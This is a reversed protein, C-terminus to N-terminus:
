DPDTRYQTVRGMDEFFQDETYTGFDTSRKEEDSLDPVLELLDDLTNYAVRIAGATFASNGGRERLPARELVTVEAGNERAALAACMAANGAGVILVDCEAM